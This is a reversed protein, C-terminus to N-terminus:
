CYSSTSLLTASKNDPLIKIDCSLYDCLDDQVKLKLGKAKLLNELEAIGEETGIVLNDDVYIVVYIWNNKYKRLFLCPDVASQTFECEM